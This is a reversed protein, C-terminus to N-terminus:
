CSLLQEIAALTEPNHTRIQEVIDRQFFCRFNPNSAATYLCDDGPIVPLLNSADEDSVMGHLSGRDDLVWSVIPTLM